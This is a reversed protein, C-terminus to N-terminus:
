ERRHIMAELDLPADHPMATFEAGSTFLEYFKYPDLSILEWLPIGAQNHIIIMIDGM